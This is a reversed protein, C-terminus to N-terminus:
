PASGGFMWARRLIDDSLAYIERLAALLRGTHGTLTVNINFPQGERVAPNNGALHLALETDADPPKDLTLVLSDYHFDKLADILLQGEPGAGAFIQAAQASRLRLIGPGEAQLRGDEVAVANGRLRIPLTGSVRGTGSLGEIALLDFLEALDVREISLPLAHGEAAPDITLDRFAIRGGSVGTGFDAVALRPPPGPLLQFRASLDRLPVGPDLLAIELSQGPPSAPPWLRSLTLDLALGQVSTGQARFSMGSLQVRGGSEALGDPGWAAQAAAEVRGTVSELAALPPALAAPQLGEPAFTLPELRAEGRGAGTGLDHVASLAVGAEGEAARAEAELDVQDGNRRLSGMLTVPAAMASLGTQRLTAATVQATARDSGLQQRANAAMGDLALGLSPLDIRSDAIKVSLTGDSLGLTVRGLGLQAPLPEETVGLLAVHVADANGVLS